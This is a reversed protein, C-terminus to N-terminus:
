AAKPNVGINASPAFKARAADDRVQDPIWVTLGDYQFASQLFCAAQHNQRVLSFMRFAAASLKRLLHRSCWACRNERLGRRCPPSVGGNPSRSLCCSTIRRRVRERRSIDLPPSRRYLCNAGLKEAFTSLVVACHNERIDGRGRQPSIDRLSLTTIVSRAFTTMRPNSVWRDM